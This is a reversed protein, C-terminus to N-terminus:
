TEGSSCMADEVEPVGDPIAHQGGQGIHEAVKSEGVHFGAILCETQFNDLLHRDLFVAESEFGLDRGLYGLKTDGNELDWDAVVPSGVSFSLLDTPLITEAGDPADDLIANKSLANKKGM